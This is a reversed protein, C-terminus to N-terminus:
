NKPLDLYARLELMKGSQWKIIDVGKLLTSDLRLNFEIISVEGEVFINVAKFELEKCSNFINQVAKLAEIKGEVRKIAPDELVFNEDLMAAVADLDKADFAKIYNQTLNKLM